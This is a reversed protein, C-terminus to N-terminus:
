KDIDGWTPGFGFDARVPVSLTAARCMADRVDPGISEQIGDDLEFLLSDHVQLLPEAYLGEARYLPLVDRWIEGMALKIIGQAGSQIMHNTAEREAAERIWSNESHVGPVYRIRGWMDRVYGKRRAFAKIEELYNKVGRYIRFWEKIQGNCDEENYDYLNVLMYQEHLGKGSIGNVVGFGVRKAPYRHKQKDVDAPNKIGFMWQATQTHVDSGDRFMKLLKEDQSLHALVCMEIQSLDWEGLCHGLDAVFGRRIALGLETRVPQAMLNPSSSALRGSPVRTVRLTTRIRGDPGAMRPLKHALGRIGDCERYDLIHPVCPHAFRLSELTKDDTSYRLKSKTQKMPKLKLIDFLLHAVQDGSEPNIREGTIRFISEIEDATRDRMNQELLRFHPADIKMGVRMMRECMPIAGLDIQEVLKLDDAIVRARLVPDLRLTADADRASYRVAVSPDIDDLTADRM